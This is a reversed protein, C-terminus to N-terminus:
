NEATDVPTNDVLSQQGSTVILDGAALGEPGLNRCEVFDREEIGPDVVVRRAIGDRVVFAVSVAGENLLAAKPIMLAEREDEAYIRARVFMGPRLVSALDDDHVVRVRIRFSGSTEDVVPSVFDIAARFEHDPVADCEFTVDKAGQIVGLERQPRRLYSVLALQDVVLFLDTAATITEGGRVMREAIVGDLPARIEHESLRIRESEVRAELESIANEAASIELKAKREQVEAVQLAEEAAELAFRADELEKESILGPDIELNRLHQSKAKDREVRAQDVRQAAAEAELGALEFRVRRDQLQIEAQRLASMAERDDLTALLTGAKVTEGEDAHVQVVRGAVKSQVTVKHESELYSTTEITRRVPRQELRTVRVLPTESVASPASPDPAPKPPTKEGSSCAALAAALGAALFSSPSRRTM